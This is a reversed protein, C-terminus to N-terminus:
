MNTYRRWRHTAPEKRIRGVSSVVQDARYTHLLEHVTQLHNGLILIYIYIYMDAEIPGRSSKVERYIPFWCKCSSPVGGPMDAASYTTYYRPWRSYATIEGKLTISEGPFCKIGMSVRACIDVSEEGFKYLLGLLIEKIQPWFHFIWSHLRCLSMNNLIFRVYTFGNRHSPKKM